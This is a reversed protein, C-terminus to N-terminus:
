FAKEHMYRGVVVAPSISYNLLPNIERFIQFHFLQTPFIFLMFQLLLLLQSLILSNLLVQKLALGCFRFLLEAFRYLMGILTAKICPHTVDRRPPIGQGFTWVTWIRATQLGCSVATRFGYPRLHDDPAECCQISRCSCGCTMHPRHQFQMPASSCQVTQAAANHRNHVCM